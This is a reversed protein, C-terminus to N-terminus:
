HMYCYIPLLMAQFNVVACREELHETVMEIQGAGLTGAVTALTPRARDQQVPLRHVGAMEQGHLDTPTGHDGDFPQCLLSIKALYKLRKHAM